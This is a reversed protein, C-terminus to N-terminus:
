MKTSANNLREAVVRWDIVKWIHKLYKARNAAYQPDYLYGHEWVDVVLLPTEGKHTLPTGANPMAKIRLQKDKLVLWVWGSGFQKIGAEEFLKKFNDFSDFQEEILTITNETPKTNDPTLQEWWFQHNYAQAAQNFLLSDVQMLSDKTLLKELSSVKAFATGKILENTKDFYGKTHKDYHYHVTDASMTPELADHAFKLKPVEFM